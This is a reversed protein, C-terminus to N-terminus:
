HRPRRLLRGYASYVLQVAILCNKIRLDAACSERDISGGGRSIATSGHADVRKAAAPVPIMTPKRPTARFVSRRREGREFRGVAAVVAGDAAVRRPLLAADVERAQTQTDM